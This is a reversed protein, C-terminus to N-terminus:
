AFFLKIYLILSHESLRKEALFAFFYRFIACKLSMDLCHLNQWDSDSRSGATPMWFSFVGLIATFAGLNFAFSKWSTEMEYVSSITELAKNQMIIAVAGVLRSAQPKENGIFLFRM